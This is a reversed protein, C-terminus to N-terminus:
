SISEYFFCVVKFRTSLIRPPRKRPWSVLVTTENGLGAARALNREVGAVLRRSEKMATADLLTLVTLSQEVRSFEDKLCVGVAVRDPVSTSVM